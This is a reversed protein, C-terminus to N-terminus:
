AEEVAPEPAALKLTEIRLARGAQRGLRAVSWTAPRFHRRCVALADHESFPRCSFVDLYVEGRAEAFHATVSSTEILQVLSYGAADPAHAAFHKILPEGHATMGIAAVLDRCFGAIAGPNRLSEPECGAMDVILHQGWM